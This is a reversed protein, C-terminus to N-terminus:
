PTRPGKTALGHSQHRPLNLILLSPPRESELPRFNHFLQLDDM